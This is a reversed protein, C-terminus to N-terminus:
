PHQSPPQEPPAPFAGREHVGSGERLREGLRTVRRQSEQRKVAMRLAKTEAIIVVLKRGRTVATYLLNRELLQYHQMALPIVVVPYESGQSKHISAAYALALEDLEGLAYEVARGDFIVTVTSQEPDIAAIRGIDGNFVEKDYNNVRQLVKDGPAYTTGFKQVRPEATPNLLRQLEVNIAQVGLGGRNMPALVQIDEVPDFGFGRPIRTTVSAFLKAAIDEPDTAEILYFDSVEGRAQALPIEGQNIRHANVIIRSSLAQRFIETLRVTPVAGSGILDALVAGPGVSPLQDVDGVILLGAADPVARLLQNMLVTDMMSAEDVVLLQTELPNEADRKFRFASPDFELLRHVTRAEIGTTETLRKAARGTPAALAVSLRKAQLIRLLSNVLTTKGVGPGGTIVCVKNALMTAVAARQSPALTLGTQAEVWPLAKDPDITGWPSAGRLLRQMHSACGVEARYLPTLFLLERDLILNEATQESAIAEEIIATPIELLKIAMAVLKEPPAACHGQESWVQLAHRVGAQARILSDRPIGLNQAIADATKFGIGWIDLALRYPNERVKEVAADGYTKYIRVARSTGVGHSQLFVMIERIVKQEAWASSVRERRKPGIGELEELREPTTEIVDFVAEGFARVLKRAFHPGIGKVMGSGLYKEIGELTTPPVVRLQEARFQLGHERDNVWAGHAEISEGASVSAASGIVTMLDRQGRVKVRLVCFGSQESHFTVREVAGALREHPSPSPSPSQM